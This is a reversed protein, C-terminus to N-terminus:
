LSITSEAFVSVSLSLLFIVSNVPSNSLKTFFRSFLAM